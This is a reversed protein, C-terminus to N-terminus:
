FLCVINLRELLVVSLLLYIPSTVSAVLPTVVLPQACLVSHNIKGSGMLSSDLLSSLSSSLPSGQSPNSQKGSFAAAEVTFKPCNKMETCVVNDRDEWQNQTVYPLHETLRPLIYSHISLHAFPLPQFQLRGRKICVSPAGLSWAGPRQLM